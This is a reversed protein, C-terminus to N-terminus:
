QISEMALDLIFSVFDIVEQFLEFPFEKRFNSDTFSLFGLNYTKKLFFQCM